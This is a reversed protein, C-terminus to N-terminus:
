PLRSPRTAAMVVNDLCTQLRLRMNRDKEPDNMRLDRDNAFDRLEVYAENLAIELTGDAEFGLDNLEDHSIEGGDVVRMLTGIVDKLDREM